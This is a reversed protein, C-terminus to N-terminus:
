TIERVYNDVIDRYYEVIYDKGGLETALGSLEGGQATVRIIKIASTLIKSGARRQAQYVTGYAGEGLMRVVRWAYWESPLKVQEIENAAMTM